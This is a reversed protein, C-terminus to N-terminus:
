TTHKNKRKEVYDKLKRWIRYFPIICRILITPKNKAILFPGSILDPEEKWKDDQLDNKTITRSKKLEGIKLIACITISLILFVHIFDRVWSFIWFKESFVLPLLLYPLILGTVCLLSICIQAYEEIQDFGSESLKLNFYRYFKLKDGESKMLKQYFDSDLKEIKEKLILDIVDRTITFSKSSKIECYVNGLQLNIEEYFIDHVRLRWILILLITVILSFYIMLYVPFPRDEFIKSTIAVGLFGWLGIISPIIILAVQYRLEILKTSRALFFDIWHLYLEFRKDDELKM